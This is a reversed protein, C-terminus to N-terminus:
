VGAYAMVQLDEVRAFHGVNRKLLPCELALATAAIWTDNAGISEGAARLSRSRRM